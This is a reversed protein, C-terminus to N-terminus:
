ELIDIVKKSLNKISFSSIDYNSNFLIENNAIKNIISDMKTEINEKTISFGIGNTEVYKGTKGGKSFVIIPKKLALYELFKTSFSYAIDDTLFLMAADANKVIQQIEHLPKSDFFHISSESKIIQHFQQPVEGYFSFKLKSYLQPNKLKYVALFAVLQELYKVAKNYLTGAFVFEITDTIKQISNVVIDDEDYGNYITTFRNASLQYKEIFYSNIDDAVAIIKDYKSVTEKEISYEKQLRKKGITELGFSTLNNAWPDRVDLIFNVSPYKTKLDIIYKSYRFPGVSVLVNNYGQQIKNEVVNLLENKCHASKDFYNGKLKLKVYLLSLRYAVKQFFTNPVIGLYYPYNSKFYTVRKETILTAIDKLWSSTNKGLNQAAVIQVDINEALLYKAFKAWRRGGIGAM